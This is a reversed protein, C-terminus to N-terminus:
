ELRYRVVMNLLFDMTNSSWSVDKLTVSYSDLVQRINHNDMGVLFNLSVGAEYTLFSEVKRGTYHFRDMEIGEPLIEAVRNLESGGDNLNSLITQAPIKYAFYEPYQINLHSALSIAVWELAVQISLSVRKEHKNKDEEQKLVKVQYQGERDPIIGQFVNELGDVIANSLRAKSLDNKRDEKLYFLLNPFALLARDRSGAQKQM